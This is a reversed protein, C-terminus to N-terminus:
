AHPLAESTRQPIDAMLTTLPLPAPAPAAEPESWEFGEGDEYCFWERFQQATVEYVPTGPNRQVSWLQVGGEHSRWRFLLGIELSNSPLGLEQEMWIPALLHVTGQYRHPTTTAEPLATPDPSPLPPFDGTWPTFWAWLEALGIRWLPGQHRLLHVEWIEVPLHPQPQCWHFHLGQSFRSPPVGVALALALPQQLVAQGEQSPSPSPATVPAPPTPDCRLKVAKPYGNPDLVLSLRIPVGWNRLATEQVLALVEATSLTLEGTPPPTPRHVLQDFPTPTEM